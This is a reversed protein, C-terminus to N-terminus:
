DVKKGLAFLLIREYGEVSDFLEQEMLAEHDSHAVCITGPGYLYRKQGERNVNWNPVDTGYNVPIVDFGPVDHELDVVGYGEGSSDIQVVDEPKLHEKPGGEPGSLFPKVAHNVARTIKALVEKPTGAAIRVVLEAEAKEAVVNGAVGGTIKGINLTTKGYKDSQPLHDGLTRIPALAAVLVENASRGLWPYGSHAARGKARITVHLVGKHGSVLKRETPEGFIIAEPRLGLSNAAKMGDGGTEEGVVFLAAVDDADIKSSALLNNLAIIQAAVSGKADV